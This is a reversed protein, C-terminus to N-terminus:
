RVDESGLVAAVGPHAARHEDPRVEAGAALLARVSEAYDGDADEVFDAGFSSGTLTSAAGTAADAM